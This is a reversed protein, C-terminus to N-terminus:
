KWSRSYNKDVSIKSLILSKNYKKLLSEDFYIIVCAVDGSYFIIDNNYLLIEFRHSFSENSVPPPDVVM